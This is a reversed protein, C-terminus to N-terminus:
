QEHQRSIETQPCSTATGDWDFLREPQDKFLEFWKDKGEKAIFMLHGMVCQHMAGTCDDAVAVISKSLDETEPSNPELIGYIGDYSKASLKSKAEGNDKIWQEGAALMKQCENEYGGGMGSLDVTKIGM